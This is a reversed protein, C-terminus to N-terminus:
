LAKTFMPDYIAPGSKSAIVTLEIDEDSEVGGAFFWESLHALDAASVTGDPLPLVRAWPNCVRHAAYLEGRTDIPM